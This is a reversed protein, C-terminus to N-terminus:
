RLHVGSEKERLTGFCEGCKQSKLRLTSAQEEFRSARRADFPESTKLLLSHTRPGSVKSWTYTHGTTKLLFRERSMNGPLSEINDQPVGM